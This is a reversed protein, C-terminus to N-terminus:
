EAMRLYKLMNTQIIKIEKLKSMKFIAKQTLHLM